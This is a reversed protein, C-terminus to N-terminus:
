LYGNDQNINNMIEEQKDQGNKPEESVSYTGKLDKQMGDDVEMRNRKCFM